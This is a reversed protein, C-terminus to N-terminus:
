SPWPLNGAGWGHKALVETIGARTMKEGLLLVLIQSLEDQVNGTANIQLRYQEALYDALINRQAQWDLIVQTINDRQAKLSRLEALTAM